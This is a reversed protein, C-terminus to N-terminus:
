KVQAKVKKNTQIMLWMRLMLVGSIAIVLSYNHALLVLLITHAFYSMCYNIVRNNFDEGFVLEVGEKQKSTVKPYDTTVRRILMTITIAGVCLVGYWISVMTTTGYAIILYSFILMLINYITTIM